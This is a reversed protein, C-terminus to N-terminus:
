RYIGQIPRQFGGPADISRPSWVYGGAVFAFYASNANAVVVRLQSSVLYNSPQGIWAQLNLSRDTVALAEGVTQPINLNPSHNFGGVGDFSTFNVQVPKATNEGDISNFTELSYSRSNLANGAIHFNLVILRSGGSSDGTVDGFAVWWQTPLQPEDFGRWPRYDLHGTGTVSVHSVGSYVECTSSM